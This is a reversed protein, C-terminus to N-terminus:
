SLFRARNRKKRIEIKDVKAQIDKTLSDKNIKLYLNKLDFEEAIGRFFDGKFIESQREEAIKITIDFYFSALIFPQWELSTKVYFALRSGSMKGSKYARYARSWRDKSFGDLKDADQLVLCELTVPQDLFEHHRITEITRKTFDNDFGVENLKDSLYDCVGKVEERSIEYTGDVIVDHWFAALKLSDMDVDLKEEEVIMLCNKWVAEHHLLDHMYDKPNESLRQKAEAILPDISPGKKTRDSDM